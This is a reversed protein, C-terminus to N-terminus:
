NEAIKVRMVEETAFHTEIDFGGAACNMVADRLRKAYTERLCSPANVANCIFIHGICETDVRHLM